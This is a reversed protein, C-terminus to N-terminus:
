AQELPLFALGTLQVPGSQGNIFLRAVERWKRAMFDYYYLKQQQADPFYMLQGMVVVDDMTFVPINQKTGAFLEGSLDRIDFPFIYTTGRDPCIDMCFLQGNFLALRDFDNPRVDQRITALQRSQGTARDVHLLSEAHQSEGSFHASLLLRNSVEDYTLAKVFTATKGNMAIRGMREWAGTIRLKVLTPESTAYLLTYFATDRPVYVLGSFTAGAPLDAITVLPTLEATELNLKMLQQGSIGVVIGQQASLATFLGMLLLAATIAKQLVQIVRM